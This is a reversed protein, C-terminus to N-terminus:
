VTQPQMGLAPGVMAAADPDPRYQEAADLGALGFWV